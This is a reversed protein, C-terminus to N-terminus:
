VNEEYLKQEQTTSKWLTIPHYYEGAADQRIEFVVTYLRENVWGIARFQGPWDPHDTLLYNKEFLQQAEEFGIGRTRRLKTSKKLDFQFRM